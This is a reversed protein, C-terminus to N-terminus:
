PTSATLQVIQPQPLQTLGSYFDATVQPSSHGLLKQAAFLGFATAVYSGFEKRLRHCPRHGTIGQIRLWEALVRHARECRYRLHNPQRENSPVLALGPVIFPSSPGFRERLTMLERFLEPAIPITRSEKSKPRFFATEKVTLLRQGNPATTIWAWEAKDAENRRLGLGLELLLLAYADAHPCRFDAPHWRRNRRVPPPADPDGDRLLKSRRWLRDIVDCGLPEYPKISIRRLRQGVFPNNLSLGRDQYAQLLQRSFIAAANRLITSMSVKISDESRGRRRGHELYLIKFEKIKEATLDRIRQVRVMRCIRSLDLCYRYATRHIPPADVSKLIENYIAIFEEVTPSPPPAPRKFHAEAAKLGHALSDLYIERAKRAAVEVNRTGLNFWVARGGEQLRIQWEPIEVLKGAHRYTRKRLKARWYEVHDKPLRKTVSHKKQVTETRNESNEVKMKM